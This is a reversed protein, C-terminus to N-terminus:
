SPSTAASMTSFKTNKAKQSKPVLKEKCLSLLRIYTYNRNDVLYLSQHGGFGEGDVIMFIDGDDVCIIEAVVWVNISANDFEEFGIVKGAEWGDDVSGVNLLCGLLYFFEFDGVRWSVEVAWDTEVEIDGFSWRKVRM